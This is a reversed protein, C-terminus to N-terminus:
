LLIFYYFYLYLDSLAATCYYWFVISNITYWISFLSRLYNHWKQPPYLTKFRAAGREVREESARSHRQRHRESKTMKIVTM